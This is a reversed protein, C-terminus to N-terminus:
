GASCRRADAGLPGEGRRQRADDGVDDGEHQREGHHEPQRPLDRQEREHQQRDNTMGARRTPALTPASSRSAASCLAAIVDCIVSRNEAGPAVSTLSNPRGASSAASNPRRASRTLSMPTREAIAISTNKRTARREHGPRAAPARDVAEAAVEGQLALEVRAGDHRM